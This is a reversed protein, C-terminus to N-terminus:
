HTVDPVNNNNINTNNYKNYATEPWAESLHKATFCHTRRVACGIYTSDHLIISYLLLTHNFSCIIFHCTLWMQLEKITLFEGISWRDHTMYVTFLAEASLQSWGTQSETKSKIDHILFRRAFYKYIYLCFILSKYKWSACVFPTNTSWQTHCCSQINNQIWM